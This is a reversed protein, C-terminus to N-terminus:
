LDFEKYLFRSFGAVTKKQTDPTINKKQQSYKM